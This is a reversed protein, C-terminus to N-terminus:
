DAKVAKNPKYDWKYSNYSCITKLLPQFLQWFSPPSTEDHSQPPTPKFGVNLKKSRATTTKLIFIFIHENRFKIMILLAYSDYVKNTM